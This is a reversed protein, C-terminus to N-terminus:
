RARLGAVPGTFLAPPAALTRETMERPAPRAIGFGQAYGCGLEDVIALEAASEIGEAVVSLEYAAALGVIAALM